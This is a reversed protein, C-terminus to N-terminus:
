QYSLLGGAGGPMIGGGGSGGATGGPASGSAPVKKGAVYHRYPNTSSAFASSFEGIGEDLILTQYTVAGGARTPDDYYVLVVDDPDAGTSITAGTVSVTKDLYIRSHTSLVFSGASDLTFTLGTTYSSAVLQATSAVGPAGVAIDADQTSFINPTPPAVGTQGLAFAHKATTESELTLTVVGTSPDVTRGTIVVLHTGLAPDGTLAGLDINGAEGPRFPMFYPKLPVTFPGIERSNVVEYAALEAGQDKNQCLDYQVERTKTEGDETIYTSSTVEELQVYEWKQSELRVRPVVTNIRDRWSKMAGIEIDGDALDDLGIEFLAVKPSSIRLGLVGGTWVPETAAVALMRKLNDWKSMGPGEYVAGGITWGNATCLNALEVFQAINISEKPFGCGVIKVPPVLPAGGATKEIFRGRAYALAHLAPNESWTFTSEDDWRHSGSGGPYTSDLRPDYVKVMKGIWGFQPIGSAFRKGDEDFELRHMYSAFGSLKHASGWGPMSSGGSFPVHATEPRAGLRTQVKLYGDYWGLAFGSGDLSVQSYDAWYSEFSDIPGAASIVNVQFRWRNEDGSSGDYVNMGGIYTRGIAYPVPMNKAIMVQNVTGIMDPPKMTAQAVAMAVASVASAVTAITMLAVGFVQGGPVFMLAIGAALAVIGAVQGIVKAVKSM